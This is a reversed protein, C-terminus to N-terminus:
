QGDKNGKFYITQTFNRGNLTTENYHWDSLTSIQSYLEMGVISHFLNKPIRVQFQYLTFDISNAFEQALIYNAGSILKSNLKQSVENKLKQYTPSYKSKLSEYMSWHIGKMIKVVERRKNNIITDRFASFTM